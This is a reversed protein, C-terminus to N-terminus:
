DNRGKKRRITVDNGYVKSRTANWDMATHRYCCCKLYVKLTKTM